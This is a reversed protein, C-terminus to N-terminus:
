RTEVDLKGDLVRSMHMKVEDFKGLVDKSWLDKSRLV